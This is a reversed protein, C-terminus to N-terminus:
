RSQLANVSEVYKKQGWFGISILYNDRLTEGRKIFQEDYVDDLMEQLKANDPQQL